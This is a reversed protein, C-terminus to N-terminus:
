ECGHKWYCFNVVEMILRPERLLSNKGKTAFRWSYKCKFEALVAKWHKVTLVVPSRSAFAPRVTSLTHRRCVMGPCHGTGLHTM